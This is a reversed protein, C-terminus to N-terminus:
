AWPVPSAQMESKEVPYHEEVNSLEQAFNTPYLVDGTSSQYLIDSVTAALTVRNSLTRNRRRRSLIKIKQPSLM